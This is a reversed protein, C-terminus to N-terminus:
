HNLTQIYDTQVTKTAPDYRDSKYETKGSCDSYYVLHGGDSFRYVKCGDYEFLLSVQVQGNNTPMVKIPDKACGALVALLAVFMLKKM